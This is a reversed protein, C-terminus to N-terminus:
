AAIGKSALFERLRGVTTCERMQASSLLVGYTEEVASVVGLHALSDWNDTLARGSNVDLSGPDCALVEGILSELNMEM